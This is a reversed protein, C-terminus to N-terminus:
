QRGQNPLRWVPLPSRPARPGIRPSADAPAIRSAAKAQAARPAHPPPGAVLFDAEALLFLDVLTAETVAPVDTYGM